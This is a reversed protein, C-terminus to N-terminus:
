HGHQPPSEADHGADFPAVSILTAGLDRVKALLGHLDAQDTVVGRLTCTGSSWHPDLPGELRVEARLAARRDDPVTL